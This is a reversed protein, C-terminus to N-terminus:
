QEAQAAASHGPKGLEACFRILDLLDGPPLPDTLGAPMMSGASTRQQIASKALRIEEGKADRLVLESETDSVPLGLHQRGDDTVVVLATYGEKVAAGPTLLSEVIYDLPASAGITGLDPGVKGGIGRIAHCGVCGLTERRYVLEGRAADGQQMARTALQHYDGWGYAPPPIGSKTALLRRLEADGINASQMQRFGEALVDAPLEHAAILERLRGVVKSYRLLEQWLEPAESASTDRLLAVVAPDGAAPNGSSLTFAARRRLHAPTGPGALALLGPGGSGGGCALLSDFAASRLPESSDAAAAIAVLADGLDGERWAGALRVAALQVSHDSGTLLQRLEGRRDSPREGRLRAAEALAELVAPVAPVDFGRAAAGTSQAASDLADPQASGLLQFYLRNVAQSDGARGILELWPGSGDRALSRGQLLYALAEASYRPEIAGLGFALQKERGEPSWAGSTVAQVWVPALERMSLWIAYDLDADLPMELMALVAAASEASPVLALGRAAELRVRPHADKALTFLHEVNTPRSALSRSITRTAAARIRGDSARLTRELLGEDWENLSECVWLAILGAM